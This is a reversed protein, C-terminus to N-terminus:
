GIVGVVVSDKRQHHGLPPVVSNGRRAETIDRECTVCLCIDGPALPEAIIHTRSETAGSASTLCTRDKLSYKFCAHNLVPINTLVSQPSGNKGVQKELTLPQVTAVKKDPQFSVIKGLFATHVGLLMQDVIMRLVASPHNM